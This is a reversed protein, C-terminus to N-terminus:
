EYQIGCGAPKTTSTKVAEGALIADLADRVYHEKADEAKMSDDIAGIYAVQRDGDLVFAHPTVTAGFARGIAQSPDYLYAFEFGKEKAREKMAPLKDSEGNNVNIAVIEVGKEHYDKNLAVLRDEYAKAVPCHNCTFVVLVAKADKLDTLKHLKGDVGELDVWEPAPAGVKVGGADDDSAARVLPSCVVAAAAVAVALYVRMTAIKRNYVGAEQFTTMDADGLAIFGRVERFTEVEDSARV